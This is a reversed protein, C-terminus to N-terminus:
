KTSHHDLIAHKLTAGQVYKMVYFPRGEKDSGLDHLPMISPHELQGTIQAEILFRERQETRKGRLKKFAVQRGIRCDEGLWVEGMGGRALFNKVRYRDSDLQLGVPAQDATSTFARGSQKPQEGRSPEDSGFDRDTIITPPAAMEDFRDQDAFFEALETQFEPYRRVWEQRPPAQGSERARLYSAIAEDLRQERSSSERDSGSM